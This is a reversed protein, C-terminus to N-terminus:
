EASRGDCDPCTFETELVVGFQPEQRCVGTDRCTDCSYHDTPRQQYTAAWVHRYRTDGHCEPCDTKIRSDHQGYELEFPHPWRDSIWERIRDRAVDPPTIDDDEGDTVDVFVRLMGRSWEYDTSVTPGWGDFLQKRLDDLMDDIRQELDTVMNRAWPGGSDHEHQRAASAVACDVDGGGAARVATFREGRVTFGVDDGRWAIAYGDPMDLDRWTTMEAGWENRAQPKTIKCAM